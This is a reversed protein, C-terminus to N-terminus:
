ANGDDDIMLIDNVMTYTRTREATIVKGEEPLLKNGAQDIIQLFTTTTGNKPGNYHLFTIGDKNVGFETSYVTQDM